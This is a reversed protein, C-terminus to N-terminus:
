TFMHDDVACGSLSKVISFISLSSVPTGPPAPPVPVAAIVAYIDRLSVAAEILLISSFKM